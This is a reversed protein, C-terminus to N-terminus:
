HNKTYEYSQTVTVVMYNYFIKDNRFLFGSGMLLLKGDGM